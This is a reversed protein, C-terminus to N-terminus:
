NPKKVEMYQSNTAEQAAQLHGNITSLVSGYLARIAVADPVGLLSQTLVKMVFPHSCPSLGSRGSEYPHRNAPTFSGVKVTAEVTEPDIQSLSEIVVSTTPREM